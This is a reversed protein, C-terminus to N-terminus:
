PIQNVTTKPRDMKRKAVMVAVRRNQARGAETDNSALPQFEGYGVAALREPAVGKSALFKVIETARASSLEWNTPFRGNKIPVNDTFGEVQIPNEYSKLINAIETFIVQAQNSTEVGGSAFLISDNLEIQLWLENSSVKIMQDDILQSFKENVLDSIQTLEDATQTKATTNSQSNMEPKATDEVIVIPPPQVNDETATKGLDVPTVPDNSPSVKEQPLPNAKSDNPQNFAEVFTESLVRYKSENVQSISYMVVFFAFLLTIFDAYSVLWRENNVHIEQQRRRVM